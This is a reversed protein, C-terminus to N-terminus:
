AAFTINKSREIVCSKTNKIYATTAAKGARGRLPARVEASGQASERAATHVSARQPARGVM